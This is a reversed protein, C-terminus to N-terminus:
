PLALIPDQKPLRYAFQGSLLTIHTPFQPAILFLLIFRLVTAIEVLLVCNSTSKEAIPYGDGNIGPNLM